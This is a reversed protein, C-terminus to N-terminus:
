QTGANLQDLTDRSTKLIENLRRRFSISEETYQGHKYAHQNGRPAGTSKGGHWYCKGNSMAPQRCKQGTSKAIATCQPLQLLNCPTNGNQLWGLRPGHPQEEGKSKM